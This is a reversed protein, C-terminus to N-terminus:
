FFSKSPKKRTSGFVGDIKRPTKFFEMVQYGMTDMGDDSEKVPIEDQIAGTQKEVPKYHYEEFEDTLRTPLAHDLQFPDADHERSDENFLIRKSQLMEKCKAIRPLIEKEANHIPIGFNEFCKNMEPRHDAVTWSLERGKSTVHEDILNMFLEKQQDADQQTRYVEKFLYMTQREPDGVWLSCVYPHRYGYDISASWIWDDTIPIDSEKVIHTNPDFETYVQGEVGSWNGLYLREYLVGTYKRKLKEVTRAGYETYEGDLFIKPSDVHRFKIMECEGAKERTRLHHRSSSPNCEGLLLGHPKGDVLWNGSRGTCRGSLQQWFLSSSQEAQSYVALDWETGLAKGTKDDEGLFWMRSGTEKYDLWQPTNQGGFSRIPNEPLDYLGHPLIHNVLTQLATSYITTKDKRLVVAQFNKNSACLLHALVLCEFSKACETPGYVVIENHRSIAEYLGKVVESQTQLITEKLLRM